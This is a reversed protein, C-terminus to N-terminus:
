PLLSTYVPASGPEGPVALLAYQDRPNATAQYSRATAGPAARAAAGSQSERSQEPERPPNGDYILYRRRQLYAARVFSYRDLAVEEVLDGTKLLNARTDVARLGILENRAPINAVYRLPNGRPDVILLSLADRLTSPGLVPLVIYAGSGVGWRGLTQGFDENHKELGANSAVDFLGLLGVTTNMGFRGFDSVGAGVKGQLINNAGIWIDDTNSFFNIVGTRAFEPM